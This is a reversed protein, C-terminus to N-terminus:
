LDLLQRLLPFLYPHNELFLQLPNNVYLKSKFKTYPKVLPYRDQSDGGSINYPVSWVGRLTKRADPYKEEYDDWYNGGSPYGNDWSNNSNLDQASHKNKLFNNHYVNNFKSSHGIVIGHWKTTNIINNFTIINHKSEGYIRIGNEKNGIITNNSISCNNCDLLYLGTPDNYSINNSIIINKGSSIVIGHQRNFLVKNNSVTNYHSDWRLSIGNLKNSSINNGSIINNCSHSVFIGRLRNFCINNDDIINNSNQEYFTIGCLENSNLNNGNIRNNSVNILYIGEHNNVINNRYISNNNSRLDVGGDYSPSGNSGSNVITFGSINVYDASVHIVDDHGNGDIITSNRDKGILKIKKNVLVNEYYTGSYVFVTDGNAANDVADQIQSYNGPGTGGVYLTNGGFTSTSIKNSLTLYPVSSIVLFFIIGVALSKKLM